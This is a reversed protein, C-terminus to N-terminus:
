FKSMNHIQLIEPDRDNPNELIKRVKLITNDNLIVMNTPASTTIIM